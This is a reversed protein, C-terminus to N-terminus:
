QERHFSDRPCSCPRDPMDVCGDSLIPQHPWERTALSKECFAALASQRFPPAFLDVGSPLFHRFSLVGASRETELHAAGIQSYFAGSIIDRAAFTTTRTPM